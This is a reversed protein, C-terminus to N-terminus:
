QIENKYKNLIKKAESVTNPKILTSFKQDNHAWDWEMQKSTETFKKQDFEKGQNVAEIVQNIFLEWRPTYYSSVLGSWTRNAYDNLLQGKEGWTTIISRANNRYYLEEDKNAAFKSADTLWNGLSFTSHTSVLNELDFLIEKMQNGNKILEQKNKQHYNEVFNKWVDNFYNGLVQRGINVVDFRYANKTTDSTQLMLEWATLLDKNDYWITYQNQFGTYEALQPRANTLSNDWGGTRRTYIKEALIEWSKQVNRDKTGVRRDAWNKMWDNVSLNSQWAKEFVFEYMFPNLEFGELTSGIGYFSKGGNKYTNEIKEDVDKLNGALFSNGGFNGLYCWIYNQGYYQETEKWMERADCFYDLLVLKNNPVAQLYAKTREPLWKHPEYSLMWTMQLWVASSDIARLSNYIGAAVKGLYEPEWSPSDVENFPDLGYVHSTGYIKTQEELFRKQIITFLSDSPDLFSSSFEKRFGAWESMKNIKSNPFIRKLEAPVHGAFAPLVPTMNLERERAVIKKQLEKQNTLWSMPLPSQWYDVNSMRHWPLHAPGTFYNRIESETLGFSQWVKLWISEQGTIALPMNIGNMAMWDILREWENWGWWPLTYGFTCYNLFFRKGIRSKIIVKENVNPTVKPVEVPDAAYWSVSTMCYYKLFHNLGVAMSNSNNGSIILKKGKSELSFIDNDNESAIQKFTISNSYTPAIRKLLSNAKSVESSWALLCNVSLAFLLITKKM